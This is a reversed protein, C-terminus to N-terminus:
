KMSFPSISPRQHSARHEHRSPRGRHGAGLIRMNSFAESDTKLQAAGVHQVRNASPFFHDLTGQPCILESGSEPMRNDIRELGGHMPGTPFMLSIEAKTRRRPIPTTTNANAASANNAM